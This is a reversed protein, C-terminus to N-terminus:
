TANPKLCIVQVAGAPLVLEECPQEEETLRVEQPLSGSCAKGGTLTIVSCTEPLLYGEPLEIKLKRPEEQLSVLKLIWETVKGTEPDCKGTTSRFIGGTEKEDDFVVDGAYVSFLKQVYYGPTRYTREDDFWILDPTWQSHGIRNFLPAYSALKVVDSNRELGTMFAAEALAAGMSNEKKETHAAYEGAFVAIDRPYHDYMGTHTLFWEPPMYFHEDVAFTHHGKKEQERYDTWLTEATPVEVGPGATGVIKMEPYIDHIAAEFRHARELFHVYETEWQENGIGIMELGFPEPHGMDARLKGWGSSANGNAFEILDLADQIYEKFEPSDPEVLEMSRFQCALGVSLVPLPKAGLLECLLFFEYFGIGYTQGYHCDNDKHADPGTGREYEFAWLNPIIKRDKLPGVTNKWRYRNELSVGEVICGGPFRIFGPQLENLAEFLDKRFIGAVADCPIMSILDFEFTGAGDVTLVFGAGRVNEEAALDLEYRIWRSIPATDPCKGDATGSSMKGFIDQYFKPYKEKIGEPDPLDTFLGPMHSPTLAAEGAAYVKGDKEVRVSARFSGETIVRAYFSVHYALGKKLCIGDYAKNSFGQGAGTTVLRMYHPNVPSLPSGTVFKLQAGGYASWAYGPDPITYYSGPCGYGDMAEFSRNELMEAYLGGDAASNIDEFFLGVMGKTHPHLIRDTLSLTLPEAM